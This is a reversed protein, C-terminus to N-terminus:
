LRFKPGHNKARKLGSSTLDRSLFPTQLRCPFPVTKVDTYSAISNSGVIGLSSPKAAKPSRGSALLTCPLGGLLAHSAPHGNSPSVQSNATRPVVTCLPTPFKSPSYSQAKIIGLREHRAACSSVFAPVWRPFLPNDPNSLESSVPVVESLACQLPM